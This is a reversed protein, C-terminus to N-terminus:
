LSYYIQETIVVIYCLDGAGADKGDQEKSFAYLDCRDMKEYLLMVGTMHPIIAFLPLLPVKSISSRYVNGYFTM